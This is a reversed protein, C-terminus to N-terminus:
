KPCKALFDAFVAEAPETHEGYQEALEDLRWIEAPDVVPFGAATQKKAEKISQERFFEQMTELNLSVSSHTEEPLNGRAEKWAPEDHTMQRLKGPTLCAMHDWVMEVLKREVPSLQATPPGAQTPTIGTSQGSFKSHVSKVVPGHVWAEIPDRFLPRGLLALSWGQCYYLLKQLRFPCLLVSEEPREPDYGIGVLQRAVDMADLM